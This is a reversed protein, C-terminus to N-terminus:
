IASVSNVLMISGSTIAEIIEAVNGFLILNAGSAFMSEVNDPLGPEVRVTGLNAYVIHAM